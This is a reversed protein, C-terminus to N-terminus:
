VAVLGGGRDWVWGGRGGGVVPVEFSSPYPDDEALPSLKSFKGVSSRVDWRKGDAKWSEPPRYVKEATNGIFWDGKCVPM